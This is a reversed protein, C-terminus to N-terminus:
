RRSAATHINLFARCRGGEGFSFFITRVEGVLTQALGLMQREPGGYFTSSTLQVVLRDM